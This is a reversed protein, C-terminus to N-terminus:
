WGMIARIEEEEEATAKTELQILEANERAFAREETTLKAGKIKKRRIAIVEAFTSERISMFASLFTWWHLYDMGRVDRGLITNIPPVILDFDQEWDMLKPSTKKNDEKGGAIFLCMFNLADQIYPARLDIEEPSSAINDYFIFLSAIAREVDSLNPDNLAVIVDLAVRFDGKNRINLTVDDFNVDVPLTTNM